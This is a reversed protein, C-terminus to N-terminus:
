RIKGNSPLFHLRFFRTQDRQYLEVKRTSSRNNASFRKLSGLQFDTGQPIGARLQAGGGALAESTTWSLSAALRLGTLKRADFIKRM